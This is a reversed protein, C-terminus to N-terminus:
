TLILQKLFSGLIFDEKANKLFVGHALSFTSFKYIQSIEFFFYPKLYKKNKLFNFRQNQMFDASQIDDLIKGDILDKHNLEEM